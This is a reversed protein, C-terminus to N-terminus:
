SPQDICLQRIDDIFFTPQVPMESPDNGSWNVFASDIGAASACSIDFSSDGVFITKDRPASLLGLAALAPEADPKHKTTIEPTVFADFFQYIGTEKLYLDLTNRRRSTVIACRKGSAKLMSLGEAVGPFARLYEKYIKLQLTMHEKAIAHFAEDSLPGLYIEMQARLTLGVHRRIETKSVTANGFLACTHEFCRVILDMTDILTGDADFLFYSYNKM